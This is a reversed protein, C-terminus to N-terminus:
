REEIKILNKNYILRKNVPLSYQKNRENEITKYFGIKEWFDSVQENKKTPIFEAIWSKLNWQKELFNMCYNVFVMELERGLIRCSLLLTDIYGTEEEKRVIFVGTLGQEGFKDKVSLRFVASYHCRIFTEIDPESYRRTTLNFQNTKQTLQAVRGIEHPKVLSIMAIMELSTLYDDLNNFKIKESTRSKEQQYMPTRQRDEESLYLTDFLGEKLLLQPYLYIKGPVQLVTVSPLSKSIIECEAPSDDVFVFSELGLNLEEALSVINQTKHNWNIRWAAIHSRKILCHPNNDLVEWVDEENNKSCLAVLVGREYLWLVSRQFDYFVNGPYENPDLKLGHLGDEGIIGGWLTNDCDLVLCKKVRGKLARALKAIEQAYLNLFDNKFPAKSMYLFRYDMSQKEGLIRLLREWDICYFRSMHDKVFKRLYLNINYIEGDIDSLHNFAIGQPIYFSPIFTNIAIVGQKVTEATLEFLELLRKLLYDASWRPSNYYKELQDLVLSLVIIDPKDSQLGSNTDMLEQRITDYGSYNIIPRIEAKYLHYKLFPEIGEITYNRLFYIHATLELYQSQSDALNVASLLSLLKDPSAGSIIGKLVQVSIKLEKERCHLRLKLESEQFDM